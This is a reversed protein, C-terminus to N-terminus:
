FEGIEINIHGYLEFLGDILLTPEYIFRFNCHKLILPANGGTIIVKPACKLKTKIYKIFGEVAFATGIVAGSMLSKETDDCIVDLEFDGCVEPLQATQRSLADLGTQMGVMIVGGTFAKDANIVNITTATGFDIVIAPPEYKAMAAACCVARDEGLKGKYSSIDIGCSSTEVPKLLIEGAQHHLADTIISTKQPVVSSIIGGQLLDTFGSQFQGNLFKLFVDPSLLKDTKLVAERYSEKSGVACRVNTNGISVCLIM